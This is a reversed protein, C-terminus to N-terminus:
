STDARDKLRKLVSKAVPLDNDNAYEVIEEPSYVWVPGAAGYKAGHFGTIRQLNAGGYKNSPLGQLNDPYDGVRTPKRKSKNGTKSKNKLNDNTM